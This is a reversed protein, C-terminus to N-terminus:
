ECGHSFVYLSSVREEKVAAIVSTVRVGACDSRHTGLVYGAPRRSSCRPRRCSVAANKASKESGGVSVKSTHWRKDTLKAEFFISCVDRGEIAFNTFRARIGLTKWTAKCLGKKNDRAVTDAKDFVSEMRELANEEGGEVFKGFTAPATSSTRVRFNPDDDAASAVAVLALASLVTTALFRM